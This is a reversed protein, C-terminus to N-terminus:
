VTPPVIRLARVRRRSAGIVELLFGNATKVAEGPGPIHQSLSLFLGAVTNFEGDDPLAYGLERNVERIPVSGMVLASGDPQPRIPATNQTRRGVLELFVDDLTLMGEVQGHEDTVVALPADKERLELLVETAPRDSRVFPAPQVHGKLETGVLDKAAVWGVVREPDREYVLLRPHGSHNMRRVAEAVPTDLSIAVIRTRPVMLDAARLEALELARRAIQAAEPDITGARSAEELNQKLEDASLRAETFSTRDRFPALVVNSSATLFWVLPRTAVSLWWLPRALLLAYREANRLALSKPVLEGIVLSFYSILGVVAALSIGEAHAALAPVKELVGTLNRAFAAGGFAGATAGIVTIGIQVTALFREPNDRLRLAAKAARSGERALQNLRGKRAAVIAIEAGALVGNTLILLM